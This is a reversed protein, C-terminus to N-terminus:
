KLIKASCLLDFDDKAFFLDIYGLCPRKLDKKKLFQLCVNKTAYSEM